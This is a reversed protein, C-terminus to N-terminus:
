STVRCAWSTWEGPRRPLTTDDYDNIGIAIAWSTDFLGEIAALPAGAMPLTKGSSGTQQALSCAAPWCVVSFCQSLDHFCACEQVGQPASSFAIAHGTAFIQYM